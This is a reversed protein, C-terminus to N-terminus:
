RIKEERRKEKGNKQIGKKIGGGGIPKRLDLISICHQHELTFMYADVHIQVFSTSSWLSSPLGLAPDLFADNASNFSSAGAIRTSQTPGHELKIKKKKREM